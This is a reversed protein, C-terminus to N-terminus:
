EEDLDALVVRALVRNPVGAARMQDVIWRRRGSESAIDMNRALKPHRTLVPTPNTGPTEDTMKEPSSDAVPAPEHGLQRLALVRVAGALVVNLVVSVRYRFERTM